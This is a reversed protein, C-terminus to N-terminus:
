LLNIVISNCRNKEEIDSDLNNLDQKFYERLQDQLSKDTSEIDLSSNARLSPKTILSKALNIQLELKKLALPRLENIDKTQSIATEIDVLEQSNARKIKRLLRNSLKIIRTPNGKGKTIYLVDQDTLPINPYELINQPKEPETLDDLTIQGNDYNIEYTVGNIIVNGNHLDQIVGKLMPQEETIQFNGNSDIYAFQQM